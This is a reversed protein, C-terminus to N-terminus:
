DFVFRRPRAIRHDGRGDPFEISSAWFIETFYEDVAPCQLTSNGQQDTELGSGTVRISVSTVGNACRISYLDTDSITDDDLLEFYPESTSVAGLQQSWSNPAYVDAFMLPYDLYYHEAFAAGSSTLMIYEIAGFDLASTAAHIDMASAWEGDSRRRAVLGFTPDLIVWRDLSPYFVEVLKHCDSKNLCVGLGRADVGVNIQRLLELLAVAYDTCTASTERSEIRAADLLLSDIAPVNNAKAMGRIEGAAWMAHAWRDEFTIDSAQVTFQFQVTDSSGDLFETEVSGYLGVGAPLQEVLFRRGRIWGSDSLDALGALTGIRLRYRSALPTSTWQFADAAAFTNPSTQWIMSPSAPNGTLSFVTESYRWVGAHRTWLRGYIVEATSGMAASADFSTGTIYGSDLIDNTRAASGLQVRYQDAGPVVTWRIPQSLDVNQQGLTPNTFASAARTTFTSDVFRWEGDVRTWIRAYLTTNGPLVSSRFQGTSGLEGTDVLDGSGAATGVQLRYNEADAVRSWQIPLADIDVNGQGASPLTLQAVAKLQLTYDVYRWVGDVLTYLRVYVAQDQSLLSSQRLPMTFSTNSTEGSSSIDRLGPQSGVYVFYRSAGAFPEWSLTSSSQWVGSSAVPGSLYAVPKTNYTSDVYRWVGGHKTFLRVHVTIGAPLATIPFQTALTERSDILDKAGPRTGVYLYYAESGQISTWRLPTRTDLQSPADPRPLLTAIPTLKFMRNVSRWVGGHKTFLTAHLLPGRPLDVLDHHLAQTEGSNVIDKLGPETGVYLFYSEAGPVETWMLTSRPDLEEGEAMPEIFVAVPSLRFTIQTYRWVGGYKTHIRAYVTEGAPIFTAPWSTAQTERSDVLDRAGPKTGVYLYYAEAGDVAQWRLDLRPDFAQDGAVPSLFAAAPMINLSLDVYSWAGGHRTHLRAYVTRGPPLGRADFSSSQIENSDVYDKMGPASGVYLYYAEADPVSTWEFRTNPSVTSGDVAPSVFAATPRISFEISSNVWGDAYKTHIRAYLTKGVPLSHTPWETAQTERSNILDKLGPASGVYLYYAQAGPRSTWRIPAGPFVISGDAPNAFTAPILPEQAALSSAALPWLLAVLIMPWFNRTPRLNM